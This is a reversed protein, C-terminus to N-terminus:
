MLSQKKLIERNEEHLDIVSHNFIGRKELSTIDFLNSIKKEICSYLSEEMEECQKKKQVFIIDEKIM